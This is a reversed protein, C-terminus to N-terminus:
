VSQSLRWAVWWIGTIEHKCASNWNCNVAVGPMRLVLRSRLYGNWLPLFAVIGINVNMSITGRRSFAGSAISSRTLIGLVDRASGDSSVM